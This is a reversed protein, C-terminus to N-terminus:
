PHGLIDVLIQGEYSFVYHLNQINRINLFQCPKPKVRGKEAVARSTNEIRFGQHLEPSRQVPPSASGWLRAQARSEKGLGQEWGREHDM